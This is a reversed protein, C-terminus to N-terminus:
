CFSEAFGGPHTLDSLSSPPPAGDGPKDQHAQVIPMALFSSRSYPLSGASAEIAGGPSLAVAAPPGPRARRPYPPARRPPPAHDHNYANVQEAHLHAPEAYSAITSRSRASHGFAGCPGAGVAGGPRRRLPDRSLGAGPIRWRFSM